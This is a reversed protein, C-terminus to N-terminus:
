KKEGEKIKVLKDALENDNYKKSYALLLDFFKNVTLENRSFALVKESLSKDKVKELLKVASELLNNRIVKNSIDKKRVKLTDKMQYLFKDVIFTSNVFNITPPMYQKNRENTAFEDFFWELFELPSSNEQRLREVTRFIIAQHVPTIPERYEFDTFELYKQKFIAIFETKDQKETTEAREDAKGIAKLSEYIKLENMVTTLATNLAPPLKKWDDDTAWTFVHNRIDDILSIYRTKIPM